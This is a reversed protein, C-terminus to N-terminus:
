KKLWTNTAAASDLTGSGIALPLAITRTMQVAAPSQIKALLYTVKPTSIPSTILGTNRLISSAYTSCDNRGLAYPVRTGMMSKVASVAKEASAASVPIEAIRYDIPLRIASFARIHAIQKGDREFKVLESWQTRGNAATKIGVMNHGPMGPKFAISVSAPRNALETLAKAVRPGRLLASGGFSTAISVGADSLNAWDRGMGLEQLGQSTFTDHEKGTWATRAGSITVDTGHATIVGGVAVIPIGIGLESTAAGALTVVGGVGTELVGGVAKLGGWLRTWNSPQEEQKQPEQKEASNNSANERAIAIYRQFDDSPSVYPLNGSGTVSSSKDVM